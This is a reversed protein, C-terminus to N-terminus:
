DDTILIDALGPMMLDFGRSYDHGWDCETLDAATVITDIAFAFRNEKIIERNEDNPKIEGRALDSLMDTTEKSLNNELHLFTRYYLVAANSPPYAFASSTLALLILSICVAKTLKNSMLTKM